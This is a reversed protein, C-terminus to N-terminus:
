RNSPINLGRARYWAQLAGLLPHALAKAMYAELRPLHALYGPKGDRRALRVFIGFIKSLRQASLIAYDRAFRDADFDADHLRRREVYRQFLEAELPAPVTVRADFLLSGLDYAPSGIVADQFDILGLRDNGTREERWILNPSHYDRLVWATESDAMLSLAEGWLGAFEERLVRDPETGVHPLYWDVFLEAEFLLAREDYRPLCYLSGDALAIEEPMRIAHFDALLDAAAAYREPVPAGDRVVGERGLDELLLFGGALDAAYIEPAAFGAQRLGEDVVVFPRVDEALHVLRSYPLGDRVPPGDPRAPANMLIAKEGDRHVTEYARSSADGQLPVRRAAGWGARALFERGAVSRAIRAALGEDSVQLTVRRETPGGQPEIRIVLADEPLRGSAREPWEVLAAGTELAEDLGLEDIEEATELRYLDFHALPLRALDYTQVLTFTPSPVELTEDGAAARIVARAFTSKGAGLDGVLLLCDGAKLIAALDQALRGTAAEDACHFQFSPATVPLAAGASEDQGSM